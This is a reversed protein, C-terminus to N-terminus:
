RLTSMQQNEKEQATIYHYNNYKTITNLILSQHYLCIVLTTFRQFSNVIKSDQLICLFIEGM